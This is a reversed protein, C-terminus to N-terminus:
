THCSKGNSALMWSSNLVSQFEQIIDPLTFQLTFRVRLEKHIFTEKANHRGDFRSHVFMIFHVGGYRPLVIVFLFQM